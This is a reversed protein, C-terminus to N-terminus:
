VHARGIEKKRMEEFLKAAEEVMGANCLGGVMTAYAMADPEVGDRMMEEWVRICGEMHGRRVMTKVLATYVFVDPRCVEDRMRTIMELIRETM